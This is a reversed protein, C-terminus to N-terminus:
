KKGEFNYFTRMGVGGEIVSGNFKNDFQLFWLSSRSADSYLFGIADNTNVYPNYTFIRGKGTVVEHVSIMEGSIKEMTLEGILTTDWIIGQTDVWKQVLINVPYTGAFYDVYDRTKFSDIAQQHLQDSSVKWYYPRAPRLKKAVYNVADSMLTDLVHSQFHDDESIILKYDSPITPSIWNMYFCCYDVVENHVPFLLDITCDIQGASRFSDVTETGGANPKVKWFYTQDPNLKKSFSFTNSTLSTDLLIVDFSISEALILRYDSAGSLYKWNFAFVCSDILDSYHPYILEIPDNADSPELVDYKCGAWAM